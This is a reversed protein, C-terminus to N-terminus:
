SDFISIFNRIRTWQGVLQAISYKSNLDLLAWGVEPSEYKQDISAKHGQGCAFMATEDGSM